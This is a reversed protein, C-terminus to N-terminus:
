EQTRIQEQENSEIKSVHRLLKKRSKKERTMPIRRIRGCELCTIVVRGKNLRVRANDGPMLFHKCGRCFHLKWKKPLGVNYRLAIRWALRAYAHSRERNRRFEERALTFLIDIRERAIKRHKARDKRM